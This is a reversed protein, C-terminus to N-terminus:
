EVLGKQISQTSGSCTSNPYRAQRDPGPGFFRTEEASVRGHATMCVHVREARTRCTIRIV